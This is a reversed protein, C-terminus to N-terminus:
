EKIETMIKPLKFSRTNASRRDYRESHVMQETRLHERMEELEQQTTSYGGTLRRTLREALSLNELRIREMKRRRLLAKYRQM